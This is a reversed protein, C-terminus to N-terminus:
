RRGWASRVLDSVDFDEASDEVVTRTEKPKSVGGTGLADKVAADVLSAIDKKLSDTVGSLAAKVTEDIDAAADKASGPGKGDKDKKDKKGDADKEPDEGDKPDEDTLADRIAAAAKEDAEVCKAYLGDVTKAVADKKALVEVPHKFSDAVAGVLADKMGGDGLPTVHAMVGDIESKLATEDLTGMKAVSELLVKSLSFGSDKSRGIGLFSLVNIKGMTYGGLVNDVASGSDLIRANPGARAHDCLAVHNVSLIDTMVLDYGARDADAAEAFKEEYGASIERKGSKYAEYAKRDYFVVDNTIFIEGADTVEIAANGGVFGIAREKWNEPTVSVPVHDNTFIVHNFKDLNKLVV